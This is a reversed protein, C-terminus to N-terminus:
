HAVQWVRYGHRFRGVFLVRQSLSQSPLLARLRVYVVVTRRWVRSGCEFKAAPGRRPDVTALSAGLVLPKSRPSEFRLAAAMAPELPSADLPLLLRPDREVTTLGRTCIPSHAAPAPVALSAGAAAALTAIVAFM